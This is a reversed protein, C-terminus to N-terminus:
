KVFFYHSLFSAFLKVPTTPPVEVTVMSKRSIHKEIAADRDEKNDLAATMPEPAIEKLHDVTAGLSNSSIAEVLTEYIEAVYDIFLCFKSIKYIFKANTTNHLPM